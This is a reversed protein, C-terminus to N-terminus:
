INKKMVIDSAIFNKYIYYSILVTLFDVIPFSLWVGNVGFYRGMLYALPLLFILQRLLTIILSPMGKGVSQLFCSIIYCISGFAYGLSIYRLANIGTTIIELDTTFLKLIEKPFICFLLTGLFNIVICILLSYKLTELVRTRDRAGYNYGMLPMAGQVIGNTPMYIFTQLKFYIGFVSVAIKSFSSLIINIGTVLFSSIAMIFFSPIGVSYIDKIIKKDFKIKGIKIKLQFEKKLLAKVCIIGAVIQGIVTAIGAGAVGLTPAGFYGYILIPDLIINIISGVILAYMPTVMDGTAQLIKEGTVQMILGLCGFTVIYSYQTSLDFVTKSIPFFSFYYKTFLAGLVLILIFHIISICIGLNAGQNGGEFDKEGLKRAIFSNIGIGTGVALALIFNQIPFALSVATIADSSLRAVFISDVINYLSNILMSITPPISMSILLPLVKQFGMKNKEM